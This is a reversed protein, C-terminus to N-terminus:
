LACIAFGRAIIYKFDEGSKTEVIINFLIIEPGGVRGVMGEEVVLLPRYWLKGVLSRGGSDEWWLSGVLLKGGAAKKVLTRGGSAEYWFGGVLLKGGSAEWWLNGM